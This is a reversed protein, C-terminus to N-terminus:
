VLENREVVNLILKGTNTYIAAIKNKKEYNKVGYALALFAVIDRQKGQGEYLVRVSQFRTDHGSTPTAGWFKRRAKRAM